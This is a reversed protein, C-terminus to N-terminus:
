TDCWKELSDLDRQLAVRDAGSLIPRYLLCDDAFLRFQSTAVSPLDNIHLLFLLPGLVTGQPVGSLVKDEQSRFGEVVVGQVRDVLFAEIWRLIPGNIGYTSLKGLLRRYPVTDFAKSFDFIAMDIPIHKDRKFLLDQVTVLLQTECSHLKRFGHQYASLINNHDLHPRIHSTIIHELIKCCVCTLSVPRYNEALDRGGKKFVPTVDANKSISPIVGDRM